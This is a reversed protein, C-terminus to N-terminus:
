TRSVTYGIVPESLFGLRGHLAGKSGDECTDSLHWVAGGADSVLIIALDKDILHIESGEGLSRMRSVVMRTQKGISEPSIVLLDLSGALTGVSVCKDHDKPARPNLVMIEGQLGMFFERTVSNGPGFTNARFEQIKRPYSPYSELIKSDIQPLIWDYHWCWPTGSSLDFTPDIWRQFPRGNLSKWVDFYIQGHRLAGRVMEPIGPWQALQLHCDPDKFCRRLQRPKIRLPHRHLALTESELHSEITSITREPLNLSSDIELPYRPRHYLNRPPAIRPRFLHRDDHLMMRWSFYHGETTWDVREGFMVHRVPIILQLVVFVFAILVRWSVCRDRAKSSEIGKPESAIAKSETPESAKTSESSKTPESCETPEAPESCLPLFLLNTAIMVLPFEGIFLLTYNSLHFVISLLMFLPRTLPICLLPGVLGDFLIGGWCFTFGIADDIMHAPIGLNGFLDRVSEESSFWTRCPELRYM